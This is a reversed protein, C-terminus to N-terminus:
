SNITWKGDETLEMIGFKELIGFAEENIGVFGHHYGTPTSCHQEVMGRVISMLKSCLIEGDYLVKTDYFKLRDSDIDLKCM